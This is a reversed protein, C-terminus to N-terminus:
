ARRPDNSPVVGALPTYMIVGAFPPTYMIVGAFPPTYM